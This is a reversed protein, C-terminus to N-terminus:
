AAGGARASSRGLVFGSLLGFGVLVVVLVIFNIQKSPNEDVHYTIEKTVPEFAAESGVAPRATITVSYDGRIPWLWSFTAEGEPAALVLHGLPNGEVIPMDTSFLPHVTPNTVSVEIVANPVLQGDQVVRVTNKVPGHEPIVEEAPPDTEFQIDIAAYATAPVAALMLAVLAIIVHRWRLRMAFNERSGTRPRIVRLYKSLEDEARLAPAQGGSGADKDKVFAASRCAPCSRRAGM